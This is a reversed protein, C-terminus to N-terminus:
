QFHILLNHASHVWSSRLLLLIIFFWPLCHKAAPFASTISIPTFLQFLHDHWAMSETLNENEDVSFSELQSKITSWGCNDRTKQHFGDQGGLTNQPWLM